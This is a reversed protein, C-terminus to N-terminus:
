TAEIDPDEARVLDILMARPAGYFPVAYAYDGKGIMDEKRIGCRWFM